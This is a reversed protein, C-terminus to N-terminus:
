NRKKTLPHLYQRTPDNLIRKFLEPKRIGIIRRAKAENGDAAIIAIEFATKHLNHIIDQLDKESSKRFTNKDQEGFQLFNILQFFDQNTSLVNVKETRPSEAVKFKSLADRILEFNIVFPEKITRIKKEILLSDLLYEVFSKLDRLNYPFIQREVSKRIADDDWKSAINPSGLFFSATFYRIARAFFIFNERQEYGKDYLNKLHIRRPLRSRLDNRFRGEWKKAPMNTAAIFRISSYETSTSGIKEFYVTALRPHIIDLLKAQVRTDADAIEDLFLTGNDAKRLLGDRNVAGTFAGKETGKLESMAIEEGLGSLNISVFKFRSTPEYHYHIFKALLTKGMGVDGTILISVPSILAKSVQAREEEDLLDISYPIDTGTLLDNPNKHEWIEEPMRISISPNFPHCKYNRVGELRRSIEEYLGSPFENIIIFINCERNQHERGGALEEIKQQLMPGQVSIKSEKFIDLYHVNLGSDTLAKKIKEYDPEKKNSLILVKCANGEIPFLFRQNKKNEVLTKVGKCTGIVIEM